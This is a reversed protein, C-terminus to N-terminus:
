IMKFINSKKDSYPFINYISEQLCLDIDKQLDLKMLNHYHRAKNIVNKSFNMRYSMETADNKIPFLDYLIQILKSATYHDELSYNDYLGSCVIGVDSYDNIRESVTKLNVLSYAIVNSIANIKRFTKAGNTTNLVVKKNKFDNKNDIIESPSNSFDFGSIKESKREGCLIYDIKKLDYSKEIDDTVFVEKVGYNFLTNITTTARFTDILIIVEHNEINEKPSLYTFLRKV